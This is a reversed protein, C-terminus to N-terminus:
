STEELKEGLQIIQKDLERVQAVLKRFEDSKMFEVRFRYRGSFEMFCMYGLEKSVEDREEKLRVMESRDRFRDVYGQAKLSVEEFIKNGKEYAIEATNRVKELFSNFIESANEGFIKAGESINDVYDAILEERDNNRPTHVTM